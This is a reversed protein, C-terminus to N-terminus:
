RSEPIEHSVLEVGAGAVAGSSETLGTSNPRFRPGIGLLMALLPIGVAM